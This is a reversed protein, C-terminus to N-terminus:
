FLRLIPNEGLIIVRYIDDIDDPMMAVLKPRLAALRKRQQRTAARGDLIAGAAAPELELAANVVWTVLEWWGPPRGPSPARCKAPEHIDFSKARGMSPPLIPKYSDVIAGRVLRYLWRRLAPEALDLGALRPIAKALRLGAEPHLIAAAFAQRNEPTPDNKYALYTDYM